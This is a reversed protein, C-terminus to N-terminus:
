IIKKDEESTTEPIVVTILSDIAAIQLFPPVLSHIIMERQGADTDPNLQSVVMTAIEITIKARDQQLQLKQRDLELQQKELELQAKQAALQREQDITRKEAEAKQTAIQQNLKERENRLRVEEFRLPTQIIADIGKKIVFALTTAGGAITGANLLLDIIAASNHRMVGVQLNAEKLYRSDRTQAYDMLDSLLDSSCVDSSWDCLSITHRRRSSFFFFFIQLFIDM